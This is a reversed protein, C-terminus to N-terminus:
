VQSSSRRRRPSLSPVETVFNSVEIVLPQYPPTMRSSTQQGQQNQVSTGADIVISAPRMETADNGNVALSDESSSNSMPTDSDNSGDGNGEVDNVKAMEEAELAAAELQQPHVFTNLHYRIGSGNKYSKFCGVFHCSFDGRDRVSPDYVSPNFDKPFLPNPAKPKPNGNEDLDLEETMTPSSEHSNTTASSASSAASLPSMRDNSDNHSPIMVSVPERYVGSREAYPQQKRQQLHTQAYVPHVNRM